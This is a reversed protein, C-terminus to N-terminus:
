ICIVDMILTNPPRTRSRFNWYIIELGHSLWRVKTPWRVCCVSFEACVFCMSYCYTSEVAMLHTLTANTHLEHGPSLEESFKSLHELRVPDPGPTCRCFEHHTQQQGWLGRKPSCRRPPHHLGHHDGRDCGCLHDVPLVISHDSRPSQFMKCRSSGTGVDFQFFFCSTQVSHM